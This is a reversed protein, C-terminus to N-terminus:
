KIEGQGSNIVRYNKYSQKIFLKTKVLQINDEEVHKKMIEDIM